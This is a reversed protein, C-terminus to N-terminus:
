KLLYEQFLFFLLVLAGSFIFGNFIGFIQSLIGVILSGTFLGIGIVAEHLETSIGKEIIKFIALRYSYASSIGLLSIFIAHFTANKLIGTVVFSLCLSLYSFFLIKENFVIEIKSLIYFMFFRMLFLLTLINSILPSSYGIINALKPFIFLMGGVVFFNTFNLFIVKKIEKDLHNKRYFKEPLGKYFLRFKEFYLFGSLFSIFAFFSGILFPLTEKIKFLYGSIFMGFIVGGAWSLNFKNLHFSNKSFLYQISPWFRSYFIGNLFFLIFLYKYHPCFQFFFYNISILLSSLIFWSFDLKLRLKHFIYTFTTYSFNGFFGAIGLIFPSANFKSILFLPISLTVVYGASSILFSNLYGIKEM